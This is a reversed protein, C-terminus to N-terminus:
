TKLSTIDRSIIKKDKMFREEHLRVQIKCDEYTTDKKRSNEDGRIFIINQLTYDKSSDLRDISLNSHIRDKGKISRRGKEIMTMPLHQELKNIGPGWASKMGYISKHKEWAALFEDFTFHCKNKQGYKKIRYRCGLNGYKHHLYGRETNRYQTVGKNVCKKCWSQLNNKNAKNKSFDILSKVKGCKTCKNKM